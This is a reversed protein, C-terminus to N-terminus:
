TTQLVGRAPKASTFCCVTQPVHSLSRKESSLEAECRGSSIPSICLRSKEKRYWPFGEMRSAYLYGHEMEGVCFPCKM